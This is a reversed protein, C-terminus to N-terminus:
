PQRYLFGDGAGFATRSTGDPFTLQPSSTTGAVILGNNSSAIDNGTEESLGGVSKVARVQGSGSLRVIFIDFSGAANLLTSGASLTKEFLGCVLIDGASTRAV